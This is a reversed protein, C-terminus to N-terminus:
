RKEWNADSAGLTGEEIGAVWDAQVNKDAFVYLKGDRVHWADPSIDATFGKSAAFSCFGGYQPAYAEPNEEFLTMNEASSFQWSADGWALTFESDGPMAKADQIYAVPDYGKLAIGSATNYNGWMGWSVPSVKKVTAFTGVVVVLIGVIAIIKTKM